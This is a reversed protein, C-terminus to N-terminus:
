LGLAERVKLALAVHTRHGSKRATVDLTSLPLGTLTMDGILDLLKHRAPEDPFRTDGRPGAPDLVICSSEDLGRGLGLREVHPLEFDFVLTRAPAIQEAYEAPSQLRVEATQVGPWRDAPTEFTFRFHGSGRAAALDARRDAPTEHDKEYVRDFLVPFEAPGIEAVGSELIARVWPGASGDLGPMEGGVVEIEADTIGLGGLASLLHEVVGVGGLVTCRSTDTVNEAVAATGNIRLGSEGPMVRVAVAAGSHLGRGEIRIDRALTRRLVVTRM